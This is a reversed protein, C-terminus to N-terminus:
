GKVLAIIGWAFLVGFGLASGIIAAEFAKASGSILNKQALEHVSNVTVLGPLLTVLSGVILRSSDISPILHNALFALFTVVMASGFDAIYRTNDSRSFYNQLLAVINGLFFSCGIESANGHYFYVLGAGSVGYAPISLWRPYPPPAERLARIGRVADHVSIKHDTVKMVLQNIRDLLDLDVRWHAVRALEYYREGDKRIVLNIGTPMALVEIDYGFSRGMKTLLLETRNSSCGCGILTRATEVLFDLVEHASEGSNPELSETM